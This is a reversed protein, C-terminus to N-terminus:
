RCAKLHIQNNHNRSARVMLQLANAVRTRGGLYPMRRLATIVDHKNDYDSLNFQVLASQSYILAGVRTEDASVQVIAV